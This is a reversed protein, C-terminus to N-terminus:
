LRFGATVSVAGVTSRPLLPFSGRFVPREETAGVGVVEYVAKWPSLSHGAREKFM